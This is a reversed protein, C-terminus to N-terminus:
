PSARNRRGFPLLSALCGTAIGMALSVQLLWVFGLGWVQWYGVAVAYLVAYLAGVYTGLPTAWRVFLAMFFLVFLPATLLNAIKYCLELLNGEVQSVLVGLAVVTAGVILSVAQAIRVNAKESRGTGHFRDIFDSVIVSCASNLGSSLSSMAAALLGAIVLGSIGPYLGRVIYNPLLDDACELATKGAPLWDGHTQYYALLAIGVIGLFPIIVIEAAISYFYMRRAARVDRTAKFRQIAVQDAGATCIMWTFFAVAAGVFTFRV